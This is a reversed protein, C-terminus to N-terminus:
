VVTPQSRLRSFKDPYKLLALMTTAQGPYNQSEILQNSLHYEIQSFLHLIANNTVTVEDANAYATNDAKTLRGECILYSTSRHAFVVQSEISIWIDGGNNLNTSTIPDYEHYEYEKVSEDILPTDTFKLM